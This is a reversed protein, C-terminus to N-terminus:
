KHKTLRQSYVVKLLHQGLTKTQLLKNINEQTYNFNALDEEALEYNFMKSYYLNFFEANSNITNLINNKTENNIRIENNKHAKDLFINKTTLYTKEMFLKLDDNKINELLKNKSKIFERELELPKDSMSNYLNTMTDNLTNNVQIAFNDFERQYQEQTRQKLIDGTYNLGSALNNLNNQNANLAGSLDVPNYINTTTM